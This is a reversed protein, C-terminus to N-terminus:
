NGEVPPPTLTEMILTFDEVTMSASLEDPTMDQLDEFPNGDTDVLVEKIVSAMKTMKVIPNLEPDTAAELHHLDKLMLPKVCVKGASLEVETCQPKNTFLKM